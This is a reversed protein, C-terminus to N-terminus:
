VVGINLFRLCALYVEQPTIASMCKLPKCTKKMCGACDAKSVVVECLGYPGTRHAKTPGYMAVVPVGSAVAIHLPGTDGSVYLTSLQCLALLEKITTQGTFDVVKCSELGEHIVKSKAVDAKGGALAIWFGDAILKKGLTIYYELPWEKSEWSTGPAFVIYKDQQTFGAAFLKKQVTNKQESLNPLVFQAREIKAGLYRIVDLYREIVHGQANDGCVARTVFRSGERMECYGLRNKCGTFLAVVSSKILGQLDLVLDFKKKTLSQKLERLYVIKSWLTGKRLRKSDIVIVEDIAPNDLLLDAFSDEVAWSIKAKPYLTRLAAACPLAHIVDGLSSMKVILINTYEM